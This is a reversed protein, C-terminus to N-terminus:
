KLAEVVNRVFDDFYKVNTAIQKWYMPSNIVGKKVLVDLDNELQSKVIGYRKYYVDSYGARVKVNSESQNAPKEYGLMFIKTADYVSSANKLKDLLGYQKLEKLIYNLQMELDGISKSYTRAYNYLDRKRSWYTWQCLGYGASDNIFNEYKGNDVATTYEIDSMGLKHNHSNQLNIPNCASEAHMNGLIGCAGNVNFGKSIFFNYIKEENTNGKLM